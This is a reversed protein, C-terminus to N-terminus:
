YRHQHAVAVAAHVHDPPTNYPIDNLFLIFRGDRGAEDIFLQARSRVADVPGQEILAADLGMVLTMDHEDAYAKFLAPGLASVDPDLAQCTGPYALRKIDM